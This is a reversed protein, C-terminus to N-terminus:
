VKSPAVRKEKREELKEFVELNFRLGFRGVIALGFM